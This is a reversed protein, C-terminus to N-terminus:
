IRWEVVETLVARLKDQKVMAIGSCIHQVVGSGYIRSQVVRILVARVIVQETM